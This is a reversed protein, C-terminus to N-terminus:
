CNASVNNAQSVFQLSVNEPESAKGLLTQSLGLREQALWHCVFGFHAVDFTKRQTPNPLM